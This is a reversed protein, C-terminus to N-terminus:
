KLRFHPEEIKIKKLDEYNNPWHNKFYNNINYNESKLEKLQTITLTEELKKLQRENLCPTRDIDVSDGGQDRNIIDNMKNRLNVLSAIIQKEVHPLPDYLHPPCYEAGGKLKLYKNKYKIYKSKYDTM